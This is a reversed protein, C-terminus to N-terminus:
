IFICEFCKLWNVKQASKTSKVYAYINYINKRHCEVAMINWKKKRNWKLVCPSSHSLSVQYQESSQVSNKSTVIYLLLLFTQLSM